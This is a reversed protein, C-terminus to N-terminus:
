VAIDYFRIYDPNELLPSQTMYDRSLFQLM